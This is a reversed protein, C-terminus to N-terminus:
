WALLFFLCWIEGRNHQFFTINYHFLPALNLVM